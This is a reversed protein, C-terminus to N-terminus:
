MSAIGILNGSCECGICDICNNCFECFACKTCDKSCVCEECNECEICNFCRRCNWCNFCNFCHEITKDNIAYEQLSMKHKDLFEQTVGILRSELFPIRKTTEKILEKLNSINYEKEFNIIYSEYDDNQYFNSDVFMELLKKFKKFFEYDYCLVVSNIIKLKM